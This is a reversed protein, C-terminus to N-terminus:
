ERPCEAGPAPKFEKQNRKLGTVTAGTDGAAYRGTALRNEPYSGACNIRVVYGAEDTLRAVVDDFVLRLGETTSVEVVINRSPGSEEEEIVSYLPMETPTPESAADSDSQQCATVPLLLCAFAALARPALRAHM